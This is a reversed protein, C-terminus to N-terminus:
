GISIEFRRTSLVRGIQGAPQGVVSRGHLQALWKPDQASWQDGLERLVILVMVGQRLTSDGNGNLDGEYVVHVQTNCHNEYCGIFRMGFAGSDDFVLQLTSIIQDHNVM